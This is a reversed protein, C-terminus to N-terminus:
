TMKKSEGNPTLQGQALETLQQKPLKPKVHQVVDPLKIIGRDKM